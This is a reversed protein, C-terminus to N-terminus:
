LTRIYLRLSFDSIIKVAMSHYQGHVKCSPRKTLRALVDTLSDCPGYCGLMGSGLVAVTAFAVTHPTLYGPSMARGEDM